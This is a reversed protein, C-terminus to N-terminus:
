IPRSVLQLFGWIVVLVSLRWEWVSFLKTQRQEQNEDTEFRTLVWGFDAKDIALLINQPM